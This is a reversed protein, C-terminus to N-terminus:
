RGAGLKIEEQKNEVREMLSSLIIIITAKFKYKPFNQCRDNLSQKSYFFQKMKPCRTAKAQPKKCRVAKSQFKFM